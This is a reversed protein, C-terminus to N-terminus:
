VTPALTQEAIKKKLDLVDQKAKDDAAQKEAIEADHIEILKQNAINATHLATGMAVFGAFPRLTEKSLGKLSERVNEVCKQSFAITKASAIETLNRLSEKPHPLRERLAQLQVELREKISPDQNTPSTTTIPAESGRNEISQEDLASPQKEITPQTAITLQTPQTRRSSLVMGVVPILIAVAVAGVVLLRSDINPMSFRSNPLVNVPVFANPNITSQLEPLGSNSPSLAGDLVNSLPKMSRFKDAPFTFPPSALLLRSTHIM